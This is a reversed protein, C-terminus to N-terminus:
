RAVGPASVWTPRRCATSITGVPLASEYRGPATSACGSVDRKRGATYSTSNRRAYERAAKKAAANKTMQRELGTLDADASTSTV